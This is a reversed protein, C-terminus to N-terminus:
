EGALPPDLIFDDGITKPQLMIIAAAAGGVGIGALVTYVLPIKRRVKFVETYIVEESNKTDSIKFKYNNGPKVWKPLILKYHGANAINPFTLVKKEEDYLDFNLINHAGGGTWTINYERGRKITKVEEFGGMSIFPMFEKGRLEFAMKGEYFAGQELKADWYIKREKGPKIELGVDGEVHKLPNTYDDESTYVGVTYYRGVVSDQLQYTIVVKNQEYGINTVKITQSKSAYGLLFVFAILYNRIKM